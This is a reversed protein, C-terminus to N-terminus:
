FLWTPCADIQAINQIVSFGVGDNVGDGADGRAGMLERWVILAIGGGCAKAMPANALGSEFLGVEGLGLERKRRRLNRVALPASGTYRYYLGSAVLEAGNATRLRRRRLRSSPNPSTPSK